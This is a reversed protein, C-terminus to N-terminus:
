PGESKSTLESWLENVKFEMVALRSMVRVAFAGILLTVYIAQLIAAQVVIGPLAEIGEPM